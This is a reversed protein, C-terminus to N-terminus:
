DTQPCLSATVDHAVLLLDPLTTADTSLPLVSWQWYLPARGSSAYEFEPNVYPRGTEHVHKFMDQFDVAPHYPAQGTALTPHSNAVALHLSLKRYYERNAWRLGFDAGTFLAIAAPANEIVAQFLRREADIQDLLRVQERVAIERDTVDHHIELTAIEGDIGILPTDVVEYTRHAEAARWHWRLAEGAETLPTKCWQCPCERGTFYASCSRGDPTGWQRQMAPNAYEVVCPQRIIAVGDPMADLINLLKAREAALAATRRAVRLELDDNARWLAENAEDQLRIDRRLLLFLAVATVIAFSVDEVADFEIPKSNFQPAFSTIFSLTQHTVFFWGAAILAYLTAIEFARRRASRHANEVQLPMDGPQAPTGNHNTM